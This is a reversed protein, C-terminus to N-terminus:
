KGGGLLSDFEAAQASAVKMTRYAEPLDTGGTRPALAILFPRGSELCGRLHGRIVDDGQSIIRRLIEAFQRSAADPGHAEVLREWAAGYPEGLDRM